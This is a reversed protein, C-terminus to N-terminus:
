ICAGNKRHEVGIGALIQLHERQLLDTINPDVSLPFNVIILQSIIKWSNWGIHGRYRLTVSLCVSLCSAMSIGREAYCRATNVLLINIFFIGRWHLVLYRVYDRM